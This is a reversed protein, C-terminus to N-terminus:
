KGDELIKNYFKELQAARKKWSFNNEAFKRIEINRKNLEKSEIITNLQNVLKDIEDIQVVESGIQCTDKFLVMDGVSNFIIPRGAALYDGTCNPWRGKNKNNNAQILVFTDACSLVKSYDSYDVFGLEIFYDQLNLEKRIEESVPSGTRAFVFDKRSNYLINLAKFFAKYELIEVAGMGTSIFVFHELPISFNRRFKKSNSVFEIQTIDSGGWVIEISHNSHGLKEAREKLLQSLVVTGRASKVAKKELYNDFFGITYKWVKSKADYQGTRGFYDWWEAIYVSGRIKSHVLVPIFSNPRHNDSHVIDYNNFLMYITRIIISIFDYGFKRLKLPLLSPIVIIRLNERVITIYPFKFGKRQNTLLTVDHGRKSLERAFYYTRLFAANPADFLGINSFLIKM